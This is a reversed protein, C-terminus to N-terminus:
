NFQTAFISQVVARSTTTPGTGIATVRYYYYGQGKSFADPSLQYPVFAYQEIYYYPQTAVGGITSSYPTGNSQWWSSSQTWFASANYSWVRCPSTTCSSVPIPASAQKQVWSEGDGLASEAAEFASSYDRFNQTMKETMATSSMSSVGILTLVLLFILGAVLVIGKQKKLSALKYM